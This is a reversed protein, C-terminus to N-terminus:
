YRVESDSVYSRYSKGIVSVTRISGTSSLVESNGVAFEKGKEELNDGWLSSSAVTILLLVVISTGGLLLFTDTKDFKHRRLLRGLAAGAISTASFYGGMLIFIGLTWGPDGQAISLSWILAGTVPVLVATVFRGTIFAIAGSVLLSLLLFFLLM